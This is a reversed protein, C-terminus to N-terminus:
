IAEDYDNPFSASDLHRSWTWAGTIFPRDDFDRDYIVERNKSEDIGYICLNRNGKTLFVSTSYWIFFLMFCILVFTVAQIVFEANERNTKGLGDLIGSDIVNQFNLFILVTFALSVMLSLYNKLSEKFNKFALKWMSM